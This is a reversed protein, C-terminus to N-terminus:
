QASRSVALGLALDLWFLVSLVIVTPNFQAQVIFAVVSGVTAMLTAEMQPDVTRALQDRVRKFFAVLIWLFAILGIVGSDMLQTLILNHPDNMRVNPEGITAFAMPYQLAFVREFTGPGYGLWWRDPLLRVTDEWLIIREQLASTEIKAPPRNERVSSTVTQASRPPLTTTNMSVFMGLGVLATLILALSLPKSKWRRALVTLLTVSGALLGLWAGRALTLWFCAIQLLLVLALRWRKTQSAPLVIQSLTFPVLMALYAGLFNSNGMTSFSPSIPSASWALPDIGLYQLVGYVSLPISGLLLTNILRNIQAQTRTLRAMLAFFVICCLITILGHPNDGPGWLSLRPDVSLLLALLCTVAFALVPLALPGLGDKWEGLQIAFKVHKLDFLSSLLVVAILAATIAEFFFVKAPEFPTASFPNFWLPLVLCVVLGGTEVCLGAFRSM